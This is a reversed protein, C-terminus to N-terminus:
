PTAEARPLLDLSLIKLRGLLMVIRAQDSPDGAALKIHTVDAVPQNWTPDVAIWRGNSWVENWAHWGFGDGPPWYAIGVAVRAPIGVARALAVFLVSHETCDGRKSRLADLANSYAPVYEDRIYGYVFQVLRRSATRVDTADGIAERAADRIEAADKQIFPTAELEAGLGAARAKRGVGALSDKDPEADSTLTLTVEGSARSVVQRASSPPASDGFGTFTIKLGYLKTPTALPQPPRVVAGVLLDQQYDLRKAEAEPELRAVFFGGVQSELIKGAEDVWAHEEVGLDPYASRLGIVRTLVGAFAKKEVATVTHTITVSKQISPDFHQVTVSAGVAAKALRLVALADALTEHVEATQTQSQQGADVRYTLTGNKVQGEVHVEGTAARQTFAVRTLGGTKRDYRSEEDLEVNSTKGMGAVAAKLTTSLVVDGEVQLRSRMWGVKSANLYVGYYRDYPEPLAPEKPGAHTAPAAIGLALAVLPLSSSLHPRPM